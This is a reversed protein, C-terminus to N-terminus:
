EGPPQGTDEWERLGHAATSKQPPANLLLGASAPQTETSSTALSFEGAQTM